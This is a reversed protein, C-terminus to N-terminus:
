RRNEKEQEQILRTRHITYHTPDLDLQDVIEEPRGAGRPSCRVRVYLQHYGEKQHVHKIDHVLPRLDYDVMEGKKFRQRIIESRSLLNGIREKLADESRGTWIRVRYVAERMTGQAAPARVPVPEVDMIELGDPSQPKTAQHIEALAKEQNFFADTLEYESSYGVPLPAAIQLRPQPHFGQSYAIPMNARRLLRGWIRMMDLVAVYRLPGDIGYTFRVRQVIDSKPNM